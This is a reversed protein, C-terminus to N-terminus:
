NKKQYFDRGANFPKLRCGIVETFSNMSTPWTNKAMKNIMTMTRLNRVANSSTGDIFSENFALSNKLKSFIEYYQNKSVLLTQSIFPMVM